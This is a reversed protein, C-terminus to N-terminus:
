AVAHGQEAVASGPGSLPYEVPQHRHGTDVVAQVERLEAGPSSDGPEGLTKRRPGRHGPQAGFEVTVRGVQHQAHEGGAREGGRFQSPLKALIAPRPRWLEARDDVARVDGRVLQPHVLAGVQEEDARRGRGRRHPPEEGPCRDRRDRRGHPGGEVVRRALRHGPLPEADRLGRPAREQDVAAPAECRQGGRPSGESVRTHVNERDGAPVRADLALEALKGGGPGHEPREAEGVLYRPQHGRGVDDDRQRARGGAGFRAHHAAPHQQEVDHGPVAPVVQQMLKFLAARLCAARRRGVDRRAGRRHEVTGPQVAGAEM